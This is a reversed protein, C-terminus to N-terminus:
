PIDQHNYFKHLKKMLLAKNQTWLNLIGLGRHGKISLGDGLKCPMQWTESHGQRTIALRFSCMGYVPM